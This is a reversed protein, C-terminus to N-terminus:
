PQYDTWITFHRSVLYYHWKKVDFLIAFMEKDYASLAQHKDSLAKSIFAIPHGHQMLVVGIGSGSANTEVFDKSFDPLTLVPAATM